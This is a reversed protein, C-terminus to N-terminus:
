LRIGPMKLKSQDQNMLQQMMVNTLQERARDYETM